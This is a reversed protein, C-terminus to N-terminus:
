VCCDHDVPLVQGWAIGCVKGPGAEPMGLQRMREQHHDVGGVAARKSWSLAAAAPRLRLVVRWEDPWGVVCVSLYRDCTGQM